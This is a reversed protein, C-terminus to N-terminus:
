AGLTLDATEQLTSLPLDQGQAALPLCDEPLEPLTECAFRSRTMIWKFYALQQKDLLPSSTSNYFDLTSALKRRRNASKQTL